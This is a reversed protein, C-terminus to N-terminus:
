KNANINVFASLSHESLDLKEVSFLFQRAFRGGVGDLSGSFALFVMGKRKRVVVWGVVFQLV